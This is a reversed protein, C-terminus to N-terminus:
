KWITPVWGSIYLVFGVIPLLPIFPWLLLVLCNSLVQLLVAFSGIIIIISRVIFGIFRSLIGDVFAQWRVGLSGNVKGASIQRYPSFLTGLLVNISFFDMTQELRERVILIRAKWGASYWWSLMGVIFM